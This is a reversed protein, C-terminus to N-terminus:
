ESEDIIFETHMSIIRYHFGYINDFAVLLGTKTMEGCERSIYKAVASLGSPEDSRHREWLIFSNRFGEPGCAM